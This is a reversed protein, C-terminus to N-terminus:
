RGSGVKQEELLPRLHEYVTDAVIRTGEKNPHIGDPLNLSQIGAVDELFFPIRPVQHERELDRFAERVRRMYEGGASTPSEMGALLVTVKRAKLRRIMESLNKKMQEVPQGRLIDNAGLELIVIRVDGELAWDLRSLGTSTTDGSVGANVVEYDYGDAKLKEQLLSPYSEAPLLGYGATLSDGFAVIKPINKKPEAARTAAPRAAAPSAAPEDSKCASVTAAAFLM